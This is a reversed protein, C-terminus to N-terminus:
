KPVGEDEEADRMLGQAVPEGQLIGTPRAAGDGNLLAELDALREEERQQRLAMRWLVQGIQIPDVVFTGIQEIGRLSLSGEVAADANPRSVLAVLPEGEPTRTVAILPGSTHTLHELELGLAFVRGAIMAAEGDRMGFGYRNLRLALILTAVTRWHLRHARGQGGPSVEDLPPALALGSLTFWKRVSEALMGLTAAIEGLSFRRDAHAELSIEDLLSM